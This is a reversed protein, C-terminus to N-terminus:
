ELTAPPDIEGSIIMQKQEEVEDLIEQPVASNITGLDTGGSAMDFVRVGGGEFTGETQAKVTEFVAVEVKKLASTLIHDGLFSQDSDVGIGWVGQEKAADLAGLGCGGAVQFIVDSGKSIQDLAIEKCKAQDVFDQSYANLLVIDPNAAKAGAQYGAIWNDVPPIKQGGVTSVTGTESMRAALFGALYGAEESPFILGQLNAPTEEYAFDIIAFNSDPFEEAAQLTAEGLLFGVSVIINTGEEGLTSLNPIYDADSKSELIRGDVGLEDIAQQMGLASFQNFGRDNLGGIDTVLGASIPEGEPEAEATTGEGGAAGTDAAPTEDTAEEDDGGCAALGLALVLAALVLALWPLRQKLTL